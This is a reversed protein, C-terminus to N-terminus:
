EAPKERDRRIARVARVFRRLFFPLLLLLVLGFCGCLLLTVTHTAVAEATKPDALGQQLGDSTKYAATVAAASLGVAMIQKWELRELFRAPYRSTRYSDLLLQRTASSDAKAAYGLLKTVEAPPRKALLLVADDGFEKVIRTASGPVRVELELVAPGLRRALPLLEDSRLALIRSAKPVRRCLRWFDDGHKAGQELAELGGRRVLPLIDDGYRAALSLIRRELARKLGADLVKGSRKAAAEVTEAGVKAAIKGGAAQLRPACLVGLVAAVCAITMWKKM